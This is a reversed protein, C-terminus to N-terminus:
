TPEWHGNNYIKFSPTPTSSDIWIVNQQPPETPSVLFREITKM